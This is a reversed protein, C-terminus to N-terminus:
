KGSQVEDAKVVQVPQEPGPDFSLRFDVGMETATQKAFKLARCIQRVNDKFDGTGHSRVVRQPNDLGGSIAMLDGRIEESPKWWPMGAPVFEWAIDGFTMGPPIQLEGDLFALMLRWILIRNQVEALAERKDECAREYHLWAGRSGFFNTHSEDFFSFPIDLAKFAVTLVLQTFAQFNSSPSSTQLFEARDGPELDLLVPGKGFDVEYGNKEDGNEGENNVEGGAETAQRYFALAFLQEVKAKALALDSAEYVDRLPNLATVIPSIGRVQDFRDYYGHLILNQAGVIRDLTFWGWIQRKHIAYAKARGADDIKVGHVWDPTVNDTGLPNRIRDSEIGQLSGNAIKLLGCDGRLVAQLETLRIMKAFRHRGAADCEYPRSWGGFWVELQENFADNQEDSLAPCQTRGHFQFTAVYDLHRRICWQLVSYNRHLDQANADLKLRQTPQLIRDESQTRIAPSKRRGREEIADYAVTAGLKHAAVCDTESVGNQHVILSGFTAISMLLLKLV